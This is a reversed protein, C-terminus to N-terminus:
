GQEIPQRLDAVYRKPVVREGIEGDGDPRGRRDAVAISRNGRAHHTGRQQLDHTLVIDVRGPGFSDPGAQDHTPVRQTVCQQGDDGPDAKLEREQDATQHHGLLHEVDIADAFQEDIRGCAAVEIQDLTEYEKDGGAENEDIERNVEEVTPEIRANPQALPRSTMAVIAVVAATSVSGLRGLAIHCNMLASGKPMAPSTM